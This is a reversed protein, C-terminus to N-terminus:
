RSKLRRIEAQLDSVQSELDDYSNSSSSGGGLRQRTKHVSKGWQILKKDYREPGGSAEWRSIVEEKVRSRRTLEEMSSPPRGNDKLTKQYMTHLTAESVKELERTSDAITKWDSPLEVTGALTPNATVPPRERYSKDLETKVKKAIAAEDREFPEHLGRGIMVGRLVRAGGSQVDTGGRAGQNIFASYAKLVTDNSVDDFNSDSDSGAARRVGKSFMDALRMVNGVTRKSNPTEPESTTNWGRNRLDSERSVRARVTKSQDQKATWSSIPLSSINDLGVQRYFDNQSSPEPSPSKYSFPDAM